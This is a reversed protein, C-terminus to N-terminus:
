TALSFFELDLLRNVETPVNTAGTNMLNRSEDSEQFRKWHNRSLEAPTLTKKLKFDPELIRVEYFM